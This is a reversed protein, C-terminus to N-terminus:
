EVNERFLPTLAKKSRPVYAGQITTGDTMEITENDDWIWDTPMKSLSHNVLLLRLFHADTIGAKRAQSRLARLEGKSLRLTVRNDTKNKKNRKLWGKSRAMRNDKRPRAM